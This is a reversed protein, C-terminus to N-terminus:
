DKATPGEPISQGHNLNRSIEMAERVNRVSRVFNAYFWLGGCLVAIVAVILASAAIRKVTQSQM